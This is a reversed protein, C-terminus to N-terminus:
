KPTSEQHIFLEFSCSKNSISGKQLIIFIKKKVLKMYGQMMFTYIEKFLDM